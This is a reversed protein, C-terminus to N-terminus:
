AIGGKTLATFFNGNTQMPIFRIGMNQALQGDTNRDGCVFSTAKDLNPNSLMDRVLGINPKRCSCNDQLIHPCVCIQTFRIDNKQCLSLLKKQTRAFSSLPYSPTGLGDQNTVMVLTFGLQILKKLGRIVGTLLQVERASNIQFSGPPEFILTGDRDLFAYKTKNVTNNKLVYRKYTQIFQKMQATSGLTVRLTNEIGPKNQPRVLIGNTKLIDAVQAANAPKFLIFNARSPFFTINNKKFFAETMPKSQSMIEQTYRKMDQINELSNLAGIFAPMNIDYPGRVKTLEKIYKEQAVVYGIRLSAL